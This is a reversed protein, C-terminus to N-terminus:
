IGLTHVHLGHVPVVQSQNGHRFWERTVVREKSIVHHDAGAGSLAGLCEQPGLSEPAIVWGMSAAVPAGHSICGGFVM